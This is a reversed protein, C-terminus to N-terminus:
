FFFVVSSLLCLSQIILFAPSKLFVRWKVSDKAAQRAFINWMKGGNKQISEFIFFINKWSKWIFIGFSTETTSFDAVCV